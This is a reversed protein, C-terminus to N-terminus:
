VDEGIQIVFSQPECWRSTNGELDFARVRWYYTGRSLVPTTTRRDAISAAFTHTLFDPSTSLDVQYGGAGDVPNWGLYLFTSYQFTRNDKPRYPVPAQLKEQVNLAVPETPEAPLGRCGNFGQLILSVSLFLVVFTTKM